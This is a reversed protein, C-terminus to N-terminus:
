ILWISLICVPYFLIYMLIQFHSGQFKYAWNDYNMLSTVTLNIIIVITNALIIGWLIKMFILM